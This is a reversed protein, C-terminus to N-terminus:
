NVIARALGHVGSRLARQREWRRRNAQRTLTERANAPTSAGPPNASSFLREWDLRALLLRFAGIRRAGALIALATVIQQAEVDTPDGISAVRSVSTLIDSSNAGPQQARWLLFSV